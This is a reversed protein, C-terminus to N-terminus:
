KTGGKQQFESIISQINHLSNKGAQMLYIIRLWFENPYTFCKYDTHEQIYSLSRKFRDFARGRLQALISRETDVGDLTHVNENNFLSPASTVYLRRHFPFHYFLVLINDERFEIQHFDGESVKKEFSGEAFLTYIGSKPIFVTINKMYIM